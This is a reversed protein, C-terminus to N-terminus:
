AVAVLQARSSAWAELAGAPMPRSLHFGQALLCRLRELQEAHEEAEVGEAVGYAAEEALTGRPRQALAKRFLEEAGSPEGLRAIRAAGRGQVPQGDVFMRNQKVDIRYQREGISVCYNM